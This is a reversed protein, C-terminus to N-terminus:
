CGREHTDGIVLKLGIPDPAECAVAGYRALTEVTLAAAIPSVYLIVGAQYVAADPSEVVNINAQLEGLCATLLGAQIDVRRTFRIEYWSKTSSVRVLAVLHEIVESLRRGANRAIQAREHLRQRECRREDYRVSKALERLYQAIEEVEAATLRVSHDEDM